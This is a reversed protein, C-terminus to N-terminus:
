KRCRSSVVPSLEPSAVPGRGTGGDHIVEPRIARLIDIGQRLEGPREVKQSPPARGAQLQPSAVPRGGSRSQDLVDVRPGTSGGGVQDRILSGEVEARVVTDMSRLEPPAVSGRLTGDEDRVERESAVPGIGEPQRDRVPSEVKVRIGRG